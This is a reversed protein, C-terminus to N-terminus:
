SEYTTKCLSMFHLIDDKEEWFNCKSSESVSINFLWKNCPLIRHILRYQFSQLKTDRCVFFCLSVTVYRICETVGVLIYVFPIFSTKFYDFMKDGRSTWFHWYQWDVVGIWLLCTIDCSYWVWRAVSYNTRTNNEM